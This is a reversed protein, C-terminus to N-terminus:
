LRKEWWQLIFELRALRRDPRGARSLDHNEEPFRLFEVDRKMAKLMTYLQEAQEVPCRLDGESHIILLPTKINKVYSLPSLKAYHAPDDYAHGGFERFDEYGFDSTGYFSFLNTVSRETMAAKFRDTHGVIWNTMYGGYSGGCVGTRRADVFGMEEVCDVAAMLDRYDLNGWDNVIASAFREGYGQSGRPNAYLVVYGQAALLQFEHFFAWGYQARPGGHIQLVLPYKRRASFGLPKLLWGQLRTGDFSPFEIEEPASLALENFLEDNTATVRKLNEMGFPEDGGELVFVESISTADSITLAFRGNAASFQM